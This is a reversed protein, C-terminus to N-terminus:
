NKRKLIWSYICVNEGVFLPFAHIGLIHVIIFPGIRFARNSTTHTYRRIFTDHIHWLDYESMNGSARPRCESLELSWHSHTGAQVGVTSYAAPLGTQPMM